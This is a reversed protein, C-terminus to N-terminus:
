PRLQVSGAAIKWEGGVKRYALLYYGSSSDAGAPGPRVTVFRGHEVALDGCRSVTVGTTERRTYEGPAPARRQEISRQRAARGLTPVPTLTSFFWVDDTYQAVETKVDRTEPYRASLERIAREDAARDATCRERTAGPHGLSVCGAAAAALLASGLLRTACGSSLGPESM